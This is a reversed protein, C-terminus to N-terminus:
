GLRGLLPVFRGVSGAYARYAAGHAARLHPEEVLRVQVEIAAVLLVCGAFGLATPAMATVGVGTAIMATFIPNRVWGFAGTTVLATHEGRDVGIRWSAGMGLQAAFTGAIGVVALGVGAWRLAMTDTLADVTGAILLVPGAVVAVLAVALAVAAWWAASFPPGLAARLGTDGTRRVQIGVRLVVATLIWVACLVVASLYM